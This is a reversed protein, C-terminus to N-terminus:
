DTRERLCGAVSLRSLDATVAGVDVADDTLQLEGMEQPVSEQSLTEPFSALIPRGESTCRPGRRVDVSGGLLRLQKWWNFGGLVRRELEGVSQRIPIESRGISRGSVIEADGRHLRRPGGDLTVHQRNVDIAFVDRPGLQPRNQEVVDFREAVPLSVLGSQLM